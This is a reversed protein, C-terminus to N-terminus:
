QTSTTAYYIRFHLHPGTSTGSNGSIGIVEGAKIIAGEKLKIDSLHAYSTTLFPSNVLRNYFGSRYDYGVKEVMGDM